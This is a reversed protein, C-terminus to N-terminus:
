EMPLYNKMFLYSSPYDNIYFRRLLSMCKSIGYIYKYVFVGRKEVGEGKSFKDRYIPLLLPSTFFHRPPKTFFSIKIVNRAHTRAYM